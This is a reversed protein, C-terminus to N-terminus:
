GERLPPNGAIVALGRERREQPRQASVAPPDPRGQRAQWLRRQHRFRALRRRSPLAGWRGPVAAAAPGRGCGNVLCFRTNQANLWRCSAGRRSSDRRLARSASSACTGDAARDPSLPQGVVGRALARRLGQDDLRRQRGMERRVAVSRRSAASARRRSQVDRCISRSSLCTLMELSASAINTPNQSVLVRGNGSVAKADARSPCLRALDSQDDGRLIQARARLGSSRWPCCCAQAAASRHFPNEGTDDAGFLISALHSRTLPGLTDSQQGTLIAKM